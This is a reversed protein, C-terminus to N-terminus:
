KHSLWARFGAENVLLTRRTPRNAWAKGRAWEYIKRVSRRRSQATDLPFGAINAAVEPAIWGGPAPAVAPTPTPATRLRLRAREELEVLRGVIAPLDDTPCINVAQDIREFVTADIV